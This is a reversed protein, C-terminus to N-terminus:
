PLPPNVVTCAWADQNNQKILYGLGFNGTTRVQLDVNNQCEIRNPEAVPNNEVVIQNVIDDVFLTIQHGPEYTGTISQIVISGDPIIMRVGTVDLNQYPSNEFNLVLVGSQLAKGDVVLSKCEIKNCNINVSKDEVSESKLYQNISM